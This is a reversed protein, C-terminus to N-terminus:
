LNEPFSLVERKESSARCNIQPYETIQCSLPAKLPL